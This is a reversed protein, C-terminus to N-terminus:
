AHGRMADLYQTVRVLGQTTQILSIPTNNLHYNFAHLWESARQHNGGYLADLSRYIRIFLLVLEAEKTDAQILRQGTNIRSWSAASMGTLKQVEAANLNLHASARIFAKTIVQGRTKPDHALKPHTPM